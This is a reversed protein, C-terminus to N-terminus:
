PIYQEKIQTIKSNQLTIWYPLKNWHLSPDNIIETFTVLSIPEKADGPIGSVYTEMSISVDESLEIKQTRTDINEIFYDNPTCEDRTEETCVGARIAAEQAERGTLFEANDFLVFTKGSEKQISAIFGFLTTSETFNKQPPSFNFNLFYYTFIFIAVGLLIISLKKYM